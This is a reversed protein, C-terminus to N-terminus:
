TFTQLKLVGCMIALELDGILFKQVVSRAEEGSLGGLLEYRTNFTAKVTSKM